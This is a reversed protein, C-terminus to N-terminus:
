TSSQLLKEMSVELGAMADDAGIESVELGEMGEEDTGGKTNIM